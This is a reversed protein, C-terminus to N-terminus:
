KNKTTEYIIIKNDVIDYQLIIICSKNNKGKYFVEISEDKNIDITKINADEPIRRM